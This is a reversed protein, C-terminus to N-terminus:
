MGFNLLTDVTAADLAEAAPALAVGGALLRDLKAEISALRAGADLAECILRRLEASTDAGPEMADLLAWVRASRPDAAPLALTLSRRAAM